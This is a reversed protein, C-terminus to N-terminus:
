ILDQDRGQHSEGRYEEPAEPPGLHGHFVGLHRRPKIVLVGCASAGSGLGVDVQLCKRSYVSGANLLGFPM